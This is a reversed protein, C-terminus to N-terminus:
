SSFVAGMLSPTFTGQSWTAIAQRKPGFEIALDAAYTAPSVEHLSGFSSSRPGAAVAYVHGFSIWGLLAQGNPAIAVAPEESPDISGPRQPATFRKGARRISARLTCSGISGCVKWALVQDGAPDAAFSLGSVLQGQSSLVRQKSKGTGDAVVIQSRYSGQADFWHEIWAFTAARPSPALALEDIRHGAPATFAVRRTAPPASASGEASYISRAGFQADNGPSATWAVTTVGGPVVAAGLSEPRYPSSALQHVPGFRADAGAQTVWVGADTAFAALTANGPLPVLRGVTAGALGHLLTRTPGFAARANMAVAQVVSCCPQGQESNGDLVTMGSGNYALDLVEQSRPVRRPRWNHGASRRTMFASSVAPADENQAAFGVAASGDAFFGIQAPLLDLPEAPSFRLPRSWGAAAPQAAVAPVTMAILAVAAARALRPRRPTRGM